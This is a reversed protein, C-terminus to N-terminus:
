AHLIMLEEVLLKVMEAAMLQDEAHVLLLNMQVSQGNAEQSILGAHAQHGKLFCAEGHNMHEKAKDYEKRKTAQLAALFDSKAEGVASIIQFCILELEESM